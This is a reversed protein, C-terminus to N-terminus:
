VIATTKFLVLFFVFIVNVIPNLEVVKNATPVYKSYTTYVVRQSKVVNVLFETESGAPDKEGFLTFYLYFRCNFTVTFFRDNEYFNFM